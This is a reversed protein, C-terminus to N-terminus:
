TCSVQPSEALDVVVPDPLSAPTLGACEDAVPPPPAPPPPAPPPPAPPPPAPRPPAPPPPPAPSNFVAQVSRDGAMSITCPATGSCDGSWGLFTAGASATATLTVSTNSSLSATCSATCDRALPDVHVTGTGAIVIALTRQVPAASGSTVGAPGCSVAAVASVAVLVVALKAM